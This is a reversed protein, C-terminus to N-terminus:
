LSYSADASLTSSAAAAPTEWSILPNGTMATECEYDLPRQNLDLGRLWPLVGSILSPKPPKPNRSSSRRRPGPQAPTADGQALTHSHERGELQPVASADPDDSFRIAGRGGDQQALEEDRAQLLRSLALYRAHNGEAPDGALRVVEALVQQCFRDLAIPQLRRLRKWDAESIRRSALRPASRERPPITFTHRKVEAQVQM